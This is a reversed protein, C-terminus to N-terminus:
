LLNQGEEPVRSRAAQQEVTPAESGLGGEADTAPADSEGRAREALQAVSPPVPQTAPAGSDESTGGRVRVSVEQPIIIERAEDPMSIGREQFARKVLRIVSSKVKLWSHQRGDLWFYIKLNVTAAGLSDVLVWPDPDALVAPHEALVRRAVEQAEVVSDDYGIGVTFDERRNPNSTFNRITGKYITSNPIQIHNGDLTMLLTARVTLRQVLGTIGNIEVLDGARFPKQISLFISALFNETIDRFAIGIVLGILGTGGLVTIALRALGIVLLVLYLGLLFVIIGVARAIVDRLVPTLDQRRGLVARAVRTTGHAVFWACVLVVVGFFLLPLTRLFAIWLNGVGQRVPGLDWLSPTAVEMRNVVAVVGETRRTLNGAWERRSEADTTGSLFVVGEDVVV